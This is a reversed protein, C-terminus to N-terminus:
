PAVTLYVTNSPVGNASLVVPQPGSPTGAPVTFNVQTLGALGPPLAAFLISASKGNVTVTLAALPRPLSALAAGSSPSQGAALPPNVAGQGTFFLTAASGPRVTQPPALTRGDAATFIGPATSSIYLPLTLPPGTPSNLTLTAPGPAVGFPVQLDLQGPSVFFLPAPLGNISASSGDLAGPLPLASASLTSPALSSGFVSLVSGPAAGPTFSAANVSAGSVRFRIPIALSQPEGSPSQLFLTAQYLGPALGTANASLTLAAPGQGSTPSITLWTSPPQAFALSASWPLTSSGAQLALTASGQSALDLSTPSVSFPAAAAAPSEFSAPAAASVFNGLADRGSVNASYSAPPNVGAWCLSTTLSGFAPLASTGFYYSLQSSLDSAGAAFRTLTVPIGNTERLVLTQLWPCSSNAPNQHLVAPLSLLTLAAATPAGLFTVSESASWPAGSSPDAGAAEVLGTQPPQLGTLTLQATLTGLAPLTSSGFLAPIRASEDAGLVHLSTLSTALGATETLTIQFSWAAPPIGSSSVPNPTLSLTVRSQAAPAAVTLSVPIVLSPASSSSITVSATYLGPAPFAGANVSVPLTFPSGPAAAGSTASLIVWSASATATFSTSASPSQLTVTQGTPGSPATFALSAPSATFSAPAVADLYGAIAAYANSFRGYTAPYPQISCLSQSANPVPGGTLSGVIQGSSNLLPSGSSGPEILGQTFGAQYYLRAPALEGSVSVDADPDRQGFAVRTWSAEPHHIGTVPSGLAPDTTSWGFFYSGAPAAQSLRLFAFDGGSIPAGALYTAGTVTPVSNLDPPPGNCSPTQYFFFAQLSAADANSSVCHHATLLYPEFSHSHTALLAGSCAYEAGSSVFDYLVVGAALAAESPYCSVDLECSAASNFSGADPALPPPTLWQHALSDLTFPLASVPSPADYEVTVAEGPIRPTWFSGSELPGLSTYPGAVSSGSYVWLTGPGLSVSSFHLRLASAAPSRLTLRWVPRGRLWQGANLSEPPVPRQVGTQLAGPRIVLASESPSLPALSFPPPPHLTFALPVPRRAPAAASSSPSFAGQMQGAAAPAAAALLLLPALGRM